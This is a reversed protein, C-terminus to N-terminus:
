SEPQGLLFCIGHWRELRPHAPFLEMFEIKQINTWLKPCDGTRTPIRSDAPKVHALGRVYFFTLIFGTESLIENHFFYFRGRRGQALRV